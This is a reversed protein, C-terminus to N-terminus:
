AEFNWNRVIQALAETQTQLLNSFFQFMNGLKGQLDGLMAILVQRNSSIQGVRANFEDASMSGTRLGDTLEVMMADIEALEMLISQEASKMGEESYLLSNVLGNDIGLEEILRRADEAVYPPAVEAQILQSIASMVEDASTEPNGDSHALFGMLEPNDMVLNELFQNFEPDVMSYVHDFDFNDAGVQAYLSQVLAPDLIEMLQLYALKWYAQFVPDQLIDPPLGTRSDLASTYVSPDINNAQCYEEIYAKLDDVQQVQDSTYNVPRVM